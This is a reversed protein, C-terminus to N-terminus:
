KNIKIFFYVWERGSVGGMCAIGKVKLMSRKRGFIVCLM